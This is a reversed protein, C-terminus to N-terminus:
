RWRDSYRHAEEAHGRGLDFVRRLRRFAESRERRLIWSLRHCIEREGSKTLRLVAFAIPTWPAVLRKRGVSNM